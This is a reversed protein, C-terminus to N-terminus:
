ASNIIIAIIPNAHQHGVGGDARKSWSKGDISRLNGRANSQIAVVEISV